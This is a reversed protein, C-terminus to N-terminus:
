LHHKDYFLGSRIDPNEAFFDDLLVFITERIKYDRPSKKNSTNSLNFWYAKDVQFAEEEDFSVMYIIDHDTRFYYRDDQRWISYPSLSNITNLNLIKM